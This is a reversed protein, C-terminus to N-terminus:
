NRCCALSKAARALPGPLCRRRRGHESSAAAVQVLRHLTSPPHIHLTKLTNHNHFTKVTVSTNVTGQPTTNTSYGAYEAHMQSTNVGHPASQHAGCAVGKLIFSIFLYPSLTHFLYRHLGTYTKCQRKSSGEQLAQWLGTLRLFYERVLWFHNKRNKMHLRPAYEPARHSTSSAQATKLSVVNWLVSNRGGSASAQWDTRPSM